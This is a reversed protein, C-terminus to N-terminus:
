INPQVIMFFLWSIYIICPHDAYSHPWVISIYIYFYLYLSLYALTLVKLNRFKQRCDDRIRDGSSKMKGEVSDVYWRNRRSRADLHIGLFRVPDRSLSSGLTGRQSSLRQNNEMIQYKVTINSGTELGQNHKRLKIWINKWIIMKQVDLTTDEAFLM